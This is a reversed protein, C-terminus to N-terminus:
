ALSDCARTVEGPDSSFESAFSVFLFSTYLSDVRWLVWGAENDGRTKEWSRGAARLFSESKRPRLRLSSAIWFIASCQEKLLIFCFGMDFKLRTGFWYMSLVLDGNRLFPPTNAGRGKFADWKRRDYEGLQEGTHEQWTHDSVPFVM